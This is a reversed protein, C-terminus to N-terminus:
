QKMWWSHLLNQYMKYICCVSSRFCFMFGCCSLMFVNVRLMKKVYVYIKNTFFCTNYMFIPLIRIFPATYTYFYLFNKGAYEGIKERKKSLDSPGPTGCAYRRALKRVLSFVFLVHSSSRYIYSCTTLSLDRLQAEIFLGM